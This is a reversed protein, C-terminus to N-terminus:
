EDGLKLLADSVEMALTKSLHITCSRASKCWMNNFTIKVCPMKHGAVRKKEMYKDRIGTCAKVTIENSLNDTWTAM